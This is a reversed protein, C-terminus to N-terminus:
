FPYGWTKKFFRCFYEASIGLLETIDALSIPERYHEEVYTIVTRIREMTLRDSSPDSKTIKRSFNQILRALIQLILGHAELAGAAPAEIHLRTMSELLDCIGRYAEFRPDSVAVPPCYIPYIAIDPMFRRMAEMDLHICLFMATSDHYFTSHIQEPPVVLFHKHPLKCPYGEITVDSEGNLSYLIEMERHWHLPCYGGPVTVFEYRIGTNKINQIKEYVPESM